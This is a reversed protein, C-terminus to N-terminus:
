RGVSTSIDLATIINADVEIPAEIATASLSPFAFGVFGLVQILVRM